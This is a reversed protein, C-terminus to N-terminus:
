KTQFGTALAYLFMVLFEVLAAFEGVRDIRDMDASATLTLAEIEPLGQESLAAFVMEYPEDSESYEPKAM